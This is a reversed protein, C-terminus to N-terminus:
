PCCALKGGSLPAAPSAGGSDILPRCTAETVIAFPVPVILTAKLELALLLNCPCIRVMCAVSVIPLRLQCHPPTSLLYRGVDQLNHSRGPSRTLSTALASFSAQLQAPFRVVCKRRGNLMSARPMPYVAVPQMFSAVVIKVHVSRGCASRPRSYHNSGHQDAAAGAIDARVHAFLQGSTAELRHREVVSGGRSDRLSM